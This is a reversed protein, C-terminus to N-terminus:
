RGLKGIELKLSRQRGLAYFPRKISRPRSDFGQRSGTLEGQFKLLQEIVSRETSTDMDSTSPFVDDLESNEVDYM